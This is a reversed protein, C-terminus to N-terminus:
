RANQRVVSHSARSAWLLAALSTSIRTRRWSFATPPPRIRPRSHVPRVPGREGGQDPEEWARQLRVPQYRRGRNEGPVSPQDSPMPGVGMPRVARRNIRGDGRQDLLHGSVIRAPAVLADLAFRTAEAVPDPCGRDAPDEFAEADWRCWYTTVVGTAVTGKWAPRWV